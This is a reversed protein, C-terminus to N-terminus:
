ILSVPFQRLVLVFLCFRHTIWHNPGNEDDASQGVDGGIKQIEDSGCLVHSFGARAQKTSLTSTRWQEPGALGMLTTTTRLRVM